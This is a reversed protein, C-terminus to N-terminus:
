IHVFGFIAEVAIENQKAKSGRYIYTILDYKINIRVKYISVKTNYVFLDILV